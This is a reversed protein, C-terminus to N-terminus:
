GSKVDGLNVEFLKRKEAVMSSRKDGTEVVGQSLGVHAENRSATSDQSVSEPIKRPSRSPILLSSTSISSRASPPETLRATPGAVPVLSTRSSPLPKTSRSTGDLIEFKSVLHALGRGAGMRRKQHYSAVNGHDQSETVDTTAQTATLLSRVPM